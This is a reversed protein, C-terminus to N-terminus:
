AAEDYIVKASNKIIEGMEGTLMKYTLLDIKRGQFIHESLDLAMGSFAILGPVCGPKFDVLIDVDSNKSFDSRTISGFIALKKIGNKKCFSQIKNEDIKM